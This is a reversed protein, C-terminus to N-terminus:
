YGMAREMREETRYRAEQYLWKEILKMVRAENRDPDVEPVVRRGGCENCPQDYLGRMYDERFDPDAAFDEASLGHSDIAPNVHKGRGECTPCVEWKLVVEIPPGSGDEPYDPNLELAFDFDLIGVMRELDVSAFWPTRKTAGVRSDLYFSDM